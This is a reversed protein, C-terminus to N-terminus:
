KEYYGDINHKSLIDMHMYNDKCEPSVKKLLFDVLSLVACKSLKNIHLSIITDIEGTKLAQLNSELADFGVVFRDHHLHKSLYKTVLHIRSNFTAIYKVTPHAIFFDDLSSEIEDKKETNIYVNHVKVQPFNELIYDMFGSRRNAMPDSLGDKDRHIRIIAIEDNKQDFVKMTLIHACLYGSKYMPMGFYALYNDEEVKTDIYVYPIQNANLQEVFSLTENKFMPPIVVGDPSSNLLEECTAKFSNIDYQNYTFRKIIVNMRSMESEIETIGIDVYYWYDGENFSPVLFAILTEKMTALMSAFLNPQYNLDKIAKKIRIEKATSVNGRNHLVRDVTGKSVGARKAVDMITAKGSEGM